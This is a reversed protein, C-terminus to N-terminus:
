RSAMVERGLVVLRVVFIGCSCLLYFFFFSMFRKPIRSSLASEACDKENRKKM